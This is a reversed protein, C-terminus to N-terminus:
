FTAAVDRVFKGHTTNCYLCLLQDIYLGITVDPPVSTGSRGMLLIFMQFLGVHFQFLLMLPLGVSAAVSAVYALGFM